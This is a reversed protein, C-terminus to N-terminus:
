SKVRRQAMQDVKSSDWHRESASMEAMMAAKPGVKSLGSGIQRVM